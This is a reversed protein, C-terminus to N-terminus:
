TDQDLTTDYQEQDYSEEEDVWDDNEYAYSAAYQPAHSNLPRDLKANLVLPNINSTFYTSADHFDQHDFTSQCDSGDCETDAYYACM